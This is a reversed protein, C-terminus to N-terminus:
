VLREGRRAVLRLRVLRPLSALEEQEAVATLRSGEERGGELSTVLDNLMPPEDQLGHGTGSFVFRSVDIVDRIVKHSSGVGRVDKFPAHGPLFALPLSRQPQHQFHDRSIIALRQLAAAHEPHLQLTFVGPTKRCTQLGPAQAVALGPFHQLLQYPAEPLLACDSHWLSHIRAILVEVRSTSGDVHASLRGLRFTFDETPQWCATDVSPEIVDRPHQPGSATGGIRAIDQASAPPEQFADRIAPKRSGLVPPDADYPLDIVGPQPEGRDTRIIQNVPALSAATKGCNRDPSYAGGYAACPYQQLVLNRRGFSVVIVVPVQITRKVRHRKGRPFVRPLQRTHLRRLYLLTKHAAFDICQGTGGREFETNVDSFELRNDQAIHGRGDRVVHLSRATCAATGVRRSEDDGVSLAPRMVQGPILIRGGHHGPFHARGIYWQGIFADVPSVSM